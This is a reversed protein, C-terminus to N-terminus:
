VTLPHPLSRPLKPQVVGGAPDRDTVGERVLFRHFSRVSSLTRAVSTARYPREDPGYTSASISALFSRVVGEDVQAAESTGRSRLFAVYRGLDRRYADLTHDSLGREVALHDLYRAVRTEIPTVM